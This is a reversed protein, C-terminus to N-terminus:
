RELTFNRDARRSVAVIKQLDIVIAAGHHDPDLRQEGEPMDTWVQDTIESAPSPRATGYLTYMVGRTAFDVYFLTVNPQDSIAVALGEDPKRAWVAMTQDDLVQASGRKSVHPWGDAGIYAITLANQEGPAAAIAERIEDDLAFGIPRDTM